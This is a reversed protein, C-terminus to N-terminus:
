NAPKGLVATFKAQHLQQYSIEPYYSNPGCSMYRDRSERNNFRVDKPISGKVSHHKAVGDYNLAVGNHTMTSSYHCPTQETPNRLNLNTPRM